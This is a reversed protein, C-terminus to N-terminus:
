RQTLNSAPKMKINRPKAITAGRPEPLPEDACRWVRVTCPVYSEPGDTSSVYLWRRITIRTPTAISAPPRASM